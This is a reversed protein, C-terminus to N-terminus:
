LLEAAINKVNIVFNRSRRVMDSQALAKGSERCPSIGVRTTANPRHQRSDLSYLAKEDSVLQRGVALIPFPGEGDLIDLESCIRAQGLDVFAIDQLASEPADAGRSRQCTLRKLRDAELRRVM